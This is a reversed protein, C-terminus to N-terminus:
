SRGERRAPLVLLAAAPPPRREDAHRPERAAAAARRGAPDRGQQPRGLEPFFLDDSRIPTPDPRRAETGGMRPQGPAHLVVSRALDYTFAAAQGGAAGVSRLTVAPNRRPRRPTRQLADRDHRRRRADLPRRTGHFQMTDATIGAGPGTGHRGQRLRRERSGRGAGLGLLGALEPGPADRDPQRRGPGLEGADRGPRRHARGPALVVVGTAALTAATVSGSTRSRSPTSVRPAYSRPTTAASRTPRTLSSSCPDAPARARRPRRRGAARPWGRLRSRGRARVRALTRRILSM